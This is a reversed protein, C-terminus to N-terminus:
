VKDVKLRLQVEIPLREGVVLSHQLEITPRAMRTPVVRFIRMVALLQGDVSSSQNSRQLLDKAPTLIKM